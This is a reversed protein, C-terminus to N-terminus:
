RQVRATYTLIREGNAPIAITWEAQNSAIKRHQYSEALINWDGPIAEIVKVTVPRASANRVKIEHSSESSNRPLGQIKFDTQRREATIDFARGLTFTVTEGVATHGIRDAGLFTDGVSDTAGYIRVIGGPMPAGLGAKKDNRLRLVREANVTLRDGIRRTHFAGNGLIRFENTVPIHPSQFLVIQRTEQDALSAKRPIPYLHLDGVAEEPVPAPAAALAQRTDMERMMPQIPPPGQSVTGAVLRLAANEYAAGSNNTITAIAELSLVAGSKDLRGVYDAQWTLGGTLYRLHLTAASDGTAEFRAFLTPKERLTPPLSDYVIRGPIGTEIRDGIRLIVGNRASLVLASEVTEVGTAPNTRIIRVTRGVSHRLLAEPTLLDFAFTQDVFTAPRDSFLTVSATAPQMAPSVGTLALRNAGKVLRLKRTERVMALNGNYVTVEMLTRDEPPVARDAEDASVTTATLAVALCLAVALPPRTTPTLPFRFTHAM